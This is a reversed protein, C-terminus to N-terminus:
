LRTKGMCLSYYKGKISMLEDHTGSEVIRGGDLYIIKDANRTTSLRHAIVFTTKDQMLRDMGEQIYQETRTDVSSTAEDLILIPARSVAARAISLLQRQGQSLSAADHTLVTDYGEELREIFGHASALRAAAEVDADTADLRGYRINERVTGTFLHTDQLVITISRRLDGTAIRRVDVGDIAIRGSDIDYFRNILNIITTKGAGTSGVVAVKQGPRAEVSVHRLVQKAPDYGFSVDDLVVHGGVNRDLPAGFRCTGDDQVIRIASEGDAPEETADMVDFVRRAGALATLIMNVQAAVDNIPACFNGAFNTFVTLAGIDFGPSLCLLGGVLSTIAYVCRCLNVLVPELIGGSFQAEEQIQCTAENIADFEQQTIDERCFLRVAQQGSVLEEAYTNLEGIAHQQEDFRKGGRALLRTALFMILGSLVLTVLTLPVNMWLMAALTVVLQVVAILLGMMADNLMTGIADLDNAFCSMTDGQSIRDFYSLPLRQIKEFLEQRMAAVTRASIRVMIRQQVFRGVVGMGYCAALVTVGKLLSEVTARGESLECIIPRLSYLAAVNSVAYAIACVCAVIILLRHRAVYGLIRRMIQIDM